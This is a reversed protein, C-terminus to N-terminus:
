SKDAGPKATNIKVNGTTNSTKAEGVEKDNRSSINGHPVGKLLEIAQEMNKPSLSNYVYDTQEKKSLTKFKDYTDADMSITKGIMHVKDM